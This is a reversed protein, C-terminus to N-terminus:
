FAQEENLYFSFAFWCFLKKTELIGLKGLLRQSGMCHDFQESKFPCSGDQKKPNTKGVWITM